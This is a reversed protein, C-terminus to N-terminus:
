TGISMFGMAGLVPLVTNTIYLTVVCQQLAAEFNGLYSNYAPM